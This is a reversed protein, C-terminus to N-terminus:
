TPKSTTRPRLGEIDDYISNDGQAEEYIADEEVQQQSTMRSVSIQLPNSPIPISSRKNRGPSLVPVPPSNGHDTSKTPEITDEYIDNNESCVNSIVTSTEPVSLQYDEGHAIPTAITLDDSPQPADPVDVYLEIEPNVKINEKAPM